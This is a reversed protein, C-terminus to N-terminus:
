WGLIEYVERAPPLRPDDTDTGYLVDELLSINPESSPVTLHAKAERGVIPDAIARATFALEPAADTETTTAYTRAEPNITLNYWLHIKYGATLADLDNGVLTRYSLGFAARPQQTLTLFSVPRRLGEQTEFGTPRGLSTITVSAAGVSRFAGFAVGDLYGRDVEVDYSEEVSVLGPWIVGPQRTDYFVGRDLGYEYYRNGPVFWDLKAM